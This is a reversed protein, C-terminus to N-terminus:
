GRRRFYGPPQGLTQRFVRNFHYENAFGVQGAIEKLPTATTVLLRRAREVRLRRLEQMPTRGRWRKWSRIFHYRSLGAVGALDDLTLAEDLHAVCWALVRRVVDDEAAPPREALRLWEAQFCALYALYRDALGQGLDHECWNLLVRMRGTEDHLLEPMAGAEGRWGFFYFDAPDAADSHEVHTVGARYLLVDGTAAVLERGGLVVHLRGALIVLTEHHEHRHAGKRWHPDPLLHGIPFAEDIRLM